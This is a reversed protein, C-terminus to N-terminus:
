EPTPVGARSIGRPSETQQLQELDTRSHTRRRPCGQNASKPRRHDLGVIAKTHPTWRHLSRSVLRTTPTATSHPQTATLHPQTATTAITTSLALELRRHSLTTPVVCAVSSPSMRSLTPTTTPSVADESWSLPCKELPRPSLTEATATHFGTYTRSSMQREPLGVTSDYRYSSYHLKNRGEPPATATRNRQTATATRNSASTTSLALELRRTRGELPYSSHTVLAYSPRAVFAYNPAGRSRSELRHRHLRRPETRTSHMGRACLPTKRSSRSRWVDGPVGGGEERPPHLM